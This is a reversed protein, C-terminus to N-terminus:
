NSEFINGEMVYEDENMVLFGHQLLLEATIGNGAVLNGTFTGDYVTGCGCSSQKKKLIALQIHSNQAIQLTNQAGAIFSATRDNGRNDIIKVKGTWIDCAPGGSIECPYRPTGLGASCEPCVPLLIQKQLKKMLPAHFTVKEM